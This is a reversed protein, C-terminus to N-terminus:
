VNKAMMQPDKVRNVLGSRGRFNLTEWPFSGLEWTEGRSKGKSRELTTKSPMGEGCSVFSVNPRHICRRFVGALLVLGVDDAPSKWVFNRYHCSHLSTITILLM